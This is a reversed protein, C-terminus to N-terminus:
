YVKPTIRDIEFTHFMQFKAFVVV